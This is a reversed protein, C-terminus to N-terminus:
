IEIRIGFVKEFHDYRKRARYLYQRRYAIPDNRLKAFLANLEGQPFEAELQIRHKLYSKEDNIIKNRKVMSIDM